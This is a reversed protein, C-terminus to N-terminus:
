QQCPLCFFSPPVADRAAGYFPLTTTLLLAVVLMLNWPGLQDFLKGAVIPGVLGGLTAGLMIVPFLRQGSKPNYTDAAYGWFQATLMLSVALLFVWSAKHM